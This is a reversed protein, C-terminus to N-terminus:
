KFIKKIIKIILKYLEIIQFIQTENNVLRYFEKILSNLEKIKEIYIEMNNPNLIDEMIM